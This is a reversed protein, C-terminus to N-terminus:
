RSFAIPVRVLDRDSTMSCGDYNFRTFYLYADGDSGEFNRGASDPDLISPYAVPRDEACIGASPIHGAMLLRRKSWNVLDSSLSYYFGAQTRGDQEDEVMGVLVFRGLAENYTVSSYLAGINRTSVPKCVHAEPDATMNTYPDIFSVAFSRGNWARWASPDALNGTRMVCTGWGQARYPRTHVLAYYYGDKANRVINSPNFVGVPGAGAEYPYPISAVLRDPSPRQTYSDGADTSVALTVSNYWCTRDDNVACGAKHHQGQYEQHVLAYIKSGDLTYTSHIWERDDFQAPDADAGSGMIVTCDRVVRDLDSGVMRRNIFHSAILQTRGDADRFARAPADPYDLTECADTSWDFVVQEAGTVRVAQAGAMSIGPSLGSGMLATVLALMLTAKDVRQLTLAHM